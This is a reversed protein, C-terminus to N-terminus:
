QLFTYRNAMYLVWPELERHNTLNIGKFFREASIHSFTSPEKLLKNWVEYTTKGLQRFHPSTVKLIDMNKSVTLQVVQVKNVKPKGAKMIQKALLTHRLLQYFPEYLFDALNPAIDHKIPSTTCYFLKEYTLLRDTGDSRFRKYSTGYSESYKTEILLIVKKGKITEYMMMADISTNGAGRQRYDGIKPEEKLYNTNGIWEFAIYRDDEVPLM